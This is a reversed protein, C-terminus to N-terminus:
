TLRLVTTYPSASTSRLRSPTRPARPVQSPPRVFRQLSPARSQDHGRPPEARSRPRFAWVEGLFLAPVEVRATATHWASGYVANGHATRGSRCSHRGTPLTPVLACSGLPPQLRRRSGELWRPVRHVPTGLHVGSPGSSLGTGDSGPASATCESLLRSAAAGPSVSPAHGPRASPPSAPGPASRRPPSEARNM